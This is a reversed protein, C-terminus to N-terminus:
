VFPTNWQELPNRRSTTRSQIRGFQHHSSEINKRKLLVAGMHNNILKKRNEPM